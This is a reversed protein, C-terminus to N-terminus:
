PLTYLSNQINFANHLESCIITSRAWVHVMYTQHFAMSIIPSNNYNISYLCWTGHPPSRTHDMSRSYDTSKPSKLGVSNSELKRRSRKMLPSRVYVFFHLEESRYMHEYLLLSHPFQKNGPKLTQIRLKQNQDSLKNEEM